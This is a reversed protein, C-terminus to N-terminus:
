VLVAYSYEVKISCSRAAVTGCCHVTRYGNILKGTGTGTNELILLNSCFLRYRYERKTNKGM